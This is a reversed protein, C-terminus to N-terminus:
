NKERAEGEASARGKYGLLGEKRMTRGAKQELRGSTGRPRSEVDIPAIKEDDSEKAGGKNTNDGVLRAYVFCIDSAGGKNTNDGVLRAYVFCIDSAGGKNTNDGVLTVDGRL